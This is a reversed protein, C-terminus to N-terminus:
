SPKKTIKLLAQLRKVMHVVENRDMWLQAGNNDPAHFELRFIGTRPDRGPSIVGQGLLRSKYYLDAM